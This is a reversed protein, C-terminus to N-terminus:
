EACALQYLIEAAEDLADIEIFEDCTHAQAISGPGFVLSPIGVQALTSADTGYPVVIVEHSGRVQDIASGLRQIVEESEPPSLAPCHLWPETCTFKIEDSLRERLFTELDQPAQFPDETRVLRRDIEIQAYDPVTNVSVGGEILGVSLTAPGLLPDIVSESLHNAFEEIIAIVKALHYIANVGLQPRSSHCSRGSTSVIWRSAGKHAKVIQLETPEAVIAFDPLARFEKALHQVGLFTHEEDVTCALIVNCSQQPRERVLRAFATLMSAMGGKVDCAGRGYLKGQEIIGEFPNITMGDTPVTDQHVEFLITRSNNPAEYYALINERLPQICQREWKVDLTQFFQELYNTMRHEYILDKNM